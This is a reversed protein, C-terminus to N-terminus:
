PVVSGALSAIEAEHLRISSDGEFLPENPVIPGGSRSTALWDTQESDGIGNGGVASAFSSLVESSVKKAYWCNASNTVLWAAIHAFKPYTLELLWLLVALATDRPNEYQSDVPSNSLDRLHRFVVYSVEINRELEHYLEIVAPEQRAVKLFLSLSSVVNLRVDFELSEIESLAQEWNM